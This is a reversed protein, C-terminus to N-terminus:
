GERHVLVSISAQLVSRVTSACRESVVFAVMDYLLFRVAPGLEPDSTSDAIMAELFLRGSPAISKSHSSMTPLRRTAVQSLRTSGSRPGANQSDRNDAAFHAELSPLDDVAPAGAMSARKHMTSLKRLSLKPPLVISPTDRRMHSVISALQARTSSAARARFTLTRNAPKARRVLQPDPLEVASIAPQELAEQLNGTAEDQLADLNVLLSAGLGAAHMGDLSAEAM